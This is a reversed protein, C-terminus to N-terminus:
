SSEVSLVIANEKGGAGLAGLTRNWESSKDFFYSSLTMKFWIEKSM